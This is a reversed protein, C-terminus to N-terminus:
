KSAKILGSVARPDKLKGLAGAAYKRVFWEDDNLAGILVSVAKTDGIEGLSEAAVARVYVDHGDKDKLVKILAPVARSDKLEGLGRAASEQVRRDAKYDLAELLKTIKENGQAVEV